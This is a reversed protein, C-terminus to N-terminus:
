LDQLGKLLDLRKSTQSFPLQPTEAPGGPKNPSSEPYRSHYPWYQPDLLICEYHVNSISLMNYIRPSFCRCPMRRYPPIWLAKNCKVSNPQAPRRFEFPLYLTVESLGGGHLVEYLKINRATRQLPIVVRKRYGRSSVSRDGRLRRVLLLL